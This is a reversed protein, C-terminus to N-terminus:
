IGSCARCADVDTGSGSAHDSSWITRSVDLWAAIKHAFPCVQCWARYSTVEGDPRSFSEGEAILFLVRSYATEIARCTEYDFSRTWSIRESRGRLPQNPRLERTSSAAKGASGFALARLIKTRM